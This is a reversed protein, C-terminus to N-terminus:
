SPSSDALTSHGPRYHWQTVPMAPRWGTFGGVPEARQVAIRTLTGGLEAHWRALVVETELTVGNAVIRGTSGLAGLCGEIVGPSSVGGGLFIADPTPLDDFAEPAPSAVVRLGPVGLADANRAIRAARDARPELAITRCAPHSRMWEIGISGSGAGVDWLLEGPVPALVALALARIERKTIQGDHEFADDPLGVVRPLAITSPDAVCDIAV